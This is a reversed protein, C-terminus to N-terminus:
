ETSVRLTLAGPPPETTIRSLSHPESFGRAAAAERTIGESLQLYTSELVAVHATKEKMSREAAARAATDGIVMLVLGMYTIVSLVLLICLCLLINKQFIHLHTRSM